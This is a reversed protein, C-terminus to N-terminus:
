TLFTLPHCSEDKSCFSQEPLFSNASNKASSPWLHLNEFYSRDKSAKSGCCQTSIPRTPFNTISEPTLRTSIKQRAGAMLRLSLFHIPQFSHKPPAINSRLRRGIPHCQAKGLQLLLNEQPTLMTETLSISKNYSVLM